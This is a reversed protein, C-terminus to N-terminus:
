LRGAVPALVETMMVPRGEKASLQAAIGIAVAMAGNELTVEAKGLGEECAKLFELHEYYTSGEHFGAALVDAPASVEVREVAGHSEEHSPPTVASKSQVMRESRRGIYVCSEPLLAEVKGKQGLALVEEQQKSAEAFMCLDLMGKCGNDFDVLVFGNDIIDPVGEKGNFTEDASYTEGLHNCAQNATAYVRVPRAASTEGSETQGAGAPGANIRAMLDFFHCCKEVFTGGSNASFRNWNDVKLLFPFRHERISVMKPVGVAGSDVESILRAIPPM